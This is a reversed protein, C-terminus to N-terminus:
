RYVVSKRLFYVKYNANPFKIMNSQLYTRYLISLDYCYTLCVAANKLKVGQRITQIDELDYDERYFYILLIQLLECV